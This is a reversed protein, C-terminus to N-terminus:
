CKQRRAWTSGVSADHEGLVTAEDVVLEYSQVKGKSPKWEGVLRVAAGTSLSSKTLRRGHSQDLM